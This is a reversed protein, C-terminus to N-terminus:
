VGIALRALLEKLLQEDDTGSSKMKYDYEACIECAFAIWKLEFKQASSILRDAVFTQKIGSIECLEPGGGRGFPSVLKAAYLRRMQNSIISILKIPSERSRLLEAMIQAASDYDRRTLCDTMDFVSAEPLKIAVADIDRKKVVSGKVYNSLKEIEPIIQNMLSGSIFILYEADQRSIEKGLEKFRRAIWRVIATQEQAAFELVDGEKKLAKVISLRGDPVYGVEQVLVLTCYKPIDEFIEKLQKQADDKCANIDYDRLEVLCREGMFPVSNVAEEIDRLETKRGDFRKYNFDDSGNGLCLSKLDDLFRERLYDEDGWLMYLRHPGHIKLKSIEAGYDIGTNKQKAM